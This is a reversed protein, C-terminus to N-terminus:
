LYPSRKPTDSTRCVAETPLAVRSRRPLPASGRLQAPHATGALNHGGSRSPAMKIRPSAENSLKALAEVYLLVRQQTGHALPKTTRPGRCGHRAQTGPPLVGDSFACRTPHNLGAVPLARRMRFFEIRPSRRSFYDTCLSRIVAILLRQWIPQTRTPRLSGGITSRFDAAAAHRILPSPEHCRLPGPDLM